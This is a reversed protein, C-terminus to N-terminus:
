RQRLINAPENETEVIQALIKAAGILIEVYSGIRENAAALREENGALAECEKEAEILGHV